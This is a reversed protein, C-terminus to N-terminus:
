IKRVRGSRGQPRSDRVIHAQFSAEEQGGDLAATGNTGTSKLNCHARKLRGFSPPHQHCM